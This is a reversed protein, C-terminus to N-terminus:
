SGDDEVLRHLHLQDHRLRRHDESAEARCRDLSLPQAPSPEEDRTGAQWAFASTSKNDKVIGDTVMDFKGGITYGLHDRFARQEIYVPIPDTKAALEEHTPNVLIRDIVNESYGLRKLKNEPAMTWAKEISDHISKGLASAIFDSVDIQRDGSSVRSGLIIMRTQWRSTDLHLQGQRYDYEDHLLWVALDLSVGTENTFQAVNINESSFPTACRHAPMAMGCGTSADELVSRQSVYVGARSFGAAHAEDMNRFAQIKSSKPTDSADASPNAM